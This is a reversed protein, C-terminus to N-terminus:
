SACAPERYMRNALRHERASSAIWPVLVHDFVVTADMEDFQSSLPHEGSLGGARVVAPLRRSGKRPWPFRSSKAYPDEGPQFRPRSPACLIEDLRAGGDRHAQGTCSWDTRLAIWWACRRRPNVAAPAATARTSSHTLAARADLISTARSTVTTAWSRMAVSPRWSRSFSRKAALAEAHREHFGAAGSCGAPGGGVAIYAARKLRLHDRTRPM